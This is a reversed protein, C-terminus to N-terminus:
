GSVCSRLDAYLKFMSDPQSTEDSFVRHLSGYSFVIAAFILILAQVNSYRLEEQRIWPKLYGAIIEILERLHKRLLPDLEEQLELVSFQVLRILDPKQTLAAVILDFTCDLAARKDSAEALRALLDGRLHVQQLASELVALYLDRKHGYHRYITVENVRAITAIDRASVGNYGFRAFLGMAAALIRERTGGLFVTSRQTM